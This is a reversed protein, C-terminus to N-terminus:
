RNTVSAIPLSITVSTGQGERSALAVEGGHREVIARVLALGLGSGAIARTQEARYLEAWVHAQEAAAIGPGTDAIEVVVRNGEERARVEVADGPRTFKVANDLLNYIALFILDWDAAITPLPWPAQPTSLTIRRETASTQERALEAAEDLLAVLDVPRRELPRTELDAIKRLDATLRSLRIAQAEISQLTNIQEGILPPSNPPSSSLNALGTRMATLPNKLEHDLRQLFRRRDAASQAQQISLRQAAVRDRWRWLLLGAGLLLSIVVGLLLLWDGLLASANLSFRRNTPPGYRLALWGIVSVLLPAVVVLTRWDLWRRM